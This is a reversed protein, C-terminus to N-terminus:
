ETVKYITDKWLKSLYYGRNVIYIGAVTVGIAAVILANLKEDLILWGLIVAVV